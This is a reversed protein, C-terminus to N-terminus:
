RVTHGALWELYGSNGAVVPLAVICPLVYSHLEEVRTKVAEFLCARTKMLLLVEPEDNLQEKQGPEAWYYISQMGPVINACAVLHEQVLTRGLAHAEEMSACPIYLLIYDTM